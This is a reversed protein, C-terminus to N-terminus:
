TKFDFPKQIKRIVHIDYLAGWGREQGQEESLVRVDEKQEKGSNGEKGRGM